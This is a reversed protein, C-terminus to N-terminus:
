RDGQDCRDASSDPSELPPRLATLSPDRPCRAGSTAAGEIFGQYTRSTHKGAFHLNGGATGEIGGFGTAQGVWYYSYSGGLHKDLNGDAYWSIRSGAEWAATLGPFVPELAALQDRVLSAPPTGHDQTL